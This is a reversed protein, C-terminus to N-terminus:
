DEDGGLMLRRLEDSGAMSSAQHFIQRLALMEDLVILRVYQLDEQSASFILKSEGVAIFVVIKEKRMEYTRLDPRHHAYFEEQRFAEVMRQAVLESVHVGPLQIEFHETASRPEKVGERLGSKENFLRMLLSPTILTTFLSMVVIVGFSGRGIAGAALGMGGIILALEQRPVTGLGIRAAGRLNFGLLFSPVGCGIAKSAVCAVSFLLGLLLAGTLERLDVMMGIVCFFIPVFLEYINVLHRQLEHIMDLRSFAIGMVYAGIILALGSQEALAAALFGLALAAASMGAQDGFFRLFSSIYRAGMLGLALAAVFFVFAAILVRLIHALQISDTKGGDAVMALVATLAALALVDDIVSSSLIVSGEASNMMKKESLVSATLGISSAMAVTGMLLAATDFFSDARGTWVMVMAGAIFSLAGGSVGTVLGAPAYRLFKQLDTELGAHFLHVASAILALISIEAPIASEGVAPRPFLPELGFLSLGGLAFPGIIIGAILEGVFAPQKFYRSFVRGLLKASLIILAIHLLYKAAEHAIM